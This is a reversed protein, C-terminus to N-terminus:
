NNYNNYQMQKSLKILRQVYDTNIPVNAVSILM